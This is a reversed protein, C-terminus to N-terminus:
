LTAAELEVEKLGIQRFLDTHVNGGNPVPFLVDALGGPGKHRV